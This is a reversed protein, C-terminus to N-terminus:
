LSEYVELLGEPAHRRNHEIDCIYQRSLHAREAVYQGTVNARERRQRLWAGNPRKTPVGCHPCPEIIEKPEVSTTKTRM